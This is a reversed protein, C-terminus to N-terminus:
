FTQKLELLHQTELTESDHPIGTDQEDDEGDISHQSLSPLPGEEYITPAVLSIISDSETLMRNRWEEIKEDLKSYLIYFFRAFSNLSDPDFEHEGGTEVDGSACTRVDSPVAKPLLLPENSGAISPIDAVSVSPEEATKNAEQAASEQRIVDEHEPGVPVEIRKIDVKLDSLKDIESGPIGDLVSPPPDGGQQHLYYFDVSDTVQRRGHEEAKGNCVKANLDEHQKEKLEICDLEKKEVNLQKAVKTTTEDKIIMKEGAKVAERRPSGGDNIRRRAKSLNGSEDKTFTGIETVLKESKTEKKEGAGQEQSKENTKQPKIVVKNVPKNTKKAPVNKKKKYWCFYGLVFAVAVLIVLAIGGFIIIYKWDDWFTGATKNGRDVGFVSDFYEQLENLVHDIGNKDRAAFLLDLNELKKISTALKQNTIKGELSDSLEGMDVTSGHIDAAKFFPNKLDTIMKVETLNRIEGDVNNATEKINELSKVTKENWLKQLKAKENPDSTNEVVSDIEKKSDILVQFDDSAKKVRVLKQIASSIVGLHRSLDDAHSLKLDVSRSARKPKKFTSKIKTYEKISAELANSLKIVADVEKNGKVLTQLGKAASDDKGRSDMADKLCTMSGQENTKSWTEYAEVATKYESVLIPKIAGNVSDLNLSNVQTDFQNLLTIASNIKDKIPKIVAPLGDPTQSGTFIADYIEHLSQFMSDLNKFTGPLSNKFADMSTTATKFKEISQRFGDSTKQDITLKDVCGKFTSVLTQLRLIVPLNILLRKFNKLDKSESQQKVSKWSSYLPELKKKFDQLSALMSSLEQIDKGPNLLEKLWEDKDDNLVAVIDDFGNPFGSTLTEDTSYKRAILTTVGAQIRNSSDDNIVNALRQLRDNESLSDKKVTEISKWYETFSKTMDVIETPTTPQKAFKSLQDFFGITKNLANQVTIASALFTADYKMSDPISDIMKKMHGTLDSIDTGSKMKAISDVINNTNANMLEKSIVAVGNGSSQVATVENLFQTSLGCGGDGVCEKGIVDQIAELDKSINTVKSKSLKSLTADPGLSFLEDILKQEDSSGSKISQSISIGNVVRALKASMNAFMPGNISQSAERKTITEKEASHLFLVFCCFIFAAGGLGRTIAEKVGFNPKKEKQPNGTKKQKEEQKPPNSVKGQEEQKPPNTIMKQQKESQFELTKDDDEKKQADGKGSKYNSPIFQVVTVRQHKDIHIFAGVRLKGMYKTCSFLSFLKGNFIIEIGKPVVEHARILLSAGCDMLTKKCAGESYFNSTGRIDNYPFAVHDSNADIGSPDSWLLDHVVAILSTDVIPLPINEITKLSTLHKSIGGHAMLIGFEHKGLVPLYGFITNSLDFIAKAKEKNWLTKLEDKFGYRSNVSEVEHNGRLLTVQKPRVVHFLLLTLITRLSEDGRDVYDGLFCLGIDNRYYGGPHGEDVVLLNFDFINMVDPFNGHTDGVFSTRGSIKRLAKPDSTKFYQEICKLCFWVEEASLPFGIVHRNKTLRGMYGSVQKFNESDYESVKGYFEDPKEPFASM